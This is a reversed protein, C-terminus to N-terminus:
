SRQNEGDNKKSEKYLFCLKSTSILSLMKKIFSEKSKIIRKQFIWGNGSIMLIQEKNFEGQNKQKRREPLLSKFDLNSEVNKLLLDKAKKDNKQFIWGNRSIM